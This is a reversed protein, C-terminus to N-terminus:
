GMLGRQLNLARLVNALPKAHDFGASCQRAQSAPLTWRQPPATGFRRHSLARGAYPGMDYHAESVMPRALSAVSWPHRGRNLERPLYQGPIRLKFLPGFSELQVVRYM